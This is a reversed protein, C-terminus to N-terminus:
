PQREGYVIEGGDSAGAETPAPSAPASAGASPGAPSAAPPPSRGRGARAVVLGIVLGVVLLAVLAAIPVVISGNSAAAKVPVSQFSAFESLPGSVTFSTNAATGSYAGTGSGTWNVFEFGTAPVASLSVAAGSDVWGTSPAVTGGSTAGVTVLYQTTFAPQDVTRNSTVDVSLTSQSPVYRVGTAPSVTAIAVTVNGSIGAFTLPGFGQVAQGGISASWAVGSPLGSPTLTLSYVPAPPPIYLAFSATETIAGSMTVSTSASATSVAGTGSGVWGVFLYGTAPTATLAVSSGAMEWYSGPAPSLTGNVTPNVTLLYQGAFSVSVTGNASVNLLGGVLSLTSTLGTAFFQEGVTGNPVVSPASVLYNGPTIGSVTLPASGTYTTGGLVFSLPQGVPLGTASVVVSYTPLIPAFTAVETVPSTPAVTITLSTTTHSGGGTGTWGVFSYGPSPTATMEVSHAAAVWQSSVNVSGNVPAPVDLWYLSSYIAIVDAPGSLHLSAGPAVSYNLANVTFPVVLFSSISGGVGANGYVDSANLTTGVGGQLEVTQGSINNPMGLSTGGLDLGWASASTPVGAATFNVAFDVSDLPLLQFRVTVNTGQTASIPSQYNATGVYAYTSNYSVTWVTFPNPGYSATFALHSTPSSESLNGLTVAWTTNAPLGVETFNYSYTLNFCTGSSCLSYILFSATENVPGYVTSTGSPVSTNWSGNGSGSWSLFTLNLCSYCYSPLPASTVSYDVNAGVPVWQAGPTPSVAQNTCYQAYTAQTCAFATGSPFPPPVTSIHLRAFEEFAVHVTASGTFNGPGSPTVNGIYEYGYPGAAIAGISWNLAFAVPVGSVSLNTGTPGSRVNGSLDATWTRNVPAGTENFTVTVGVGSFLNSVAVRSTGSSSPSYCYLMSAPCEEATWAVYPTGNFVTMATDFGDWLPEEYVSGLTAGLDYAAPFSSGHNTSVFVYDTWLDCTYLTCTSANDMAANVYVVGNAGVAVSPTFLREPGRATGYIGLVQNGIAIPSSWSAGSSTSNSVWLNQFYDGGGVQCNGPTYCYTGFAGGTYAVYLEGSTPDVAIAPAPSVISGPGGYMWQYVSNWVVPVHTGVVHVDFTHGSDNSAAVVVSMTGETGGYLYGCGTPQCFQSSSYNFDTSYAVFLTGTANVTLEPGYAVSTTYTQWSGQTIPLASPSGFALGGDTSNAVWGSVNTGKPGSYPDFNPFTFHTWALYVTSGYSALAPQAPIPATTNYAPNYAADVVLPSTWNTGNDFSDMVVLRDASVLCPSLAPFYYYESYLCTTSSFSSTINYELFALVFTGNSLATLAPWMASTFNHPDQCGPNAVFTPAGWTAGANTSVAIGVETTGYSAYGPCASANTFATEAALMIGGSSAAIAPTGSNNLCTFYTCSPTTPSAIVSTTWFTGRGSSPSPGFSPLHPALSPPTAAAVAPAAPLQASASPSSLPAISTPGSALIGTGLTMGLLLLATVGLLAVRPAWRRASSRPTM